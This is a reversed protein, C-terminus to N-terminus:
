LLKVTPGGRKASTLATQKNSPGHFVTHLELHNPHTNPSMGPADWRFNPTQGSGTLCWDLSPTQREATFRAMYDEKSQMGALKWEDLIVTLEETNLDPVISMAVMTITGHSLHSTSSDLPISYM